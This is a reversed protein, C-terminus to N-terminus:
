HRDPLRLSAVRFPGSADAGVGGGIKVAALSMAALSTCDPLFAPSERSPMLSGLGLFSSAFGSSCSSGWGGLFCLGRARFGLGSEPSPSDEHAGRFPVQGDQPPQGGHGKEVPQLQGGDGARGVAGGVGGHGCEFAPPQSRGDDM